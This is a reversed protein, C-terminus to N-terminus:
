FSDNLLFVSKGTAADTRDAEVDQAVRHQLLHLNLAANVDVREHRVNLTVAAEREDVVTLLVDDDVVQEVAGDVGPKKV